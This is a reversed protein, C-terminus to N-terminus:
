ELWQKYKNQNQQIYLPLKHNELIDLKQGKEFQNTRQDVGLNYVSERNKMMDEIKKINLSSLEFERHHTYSKLKNEIGAASSIYSFHWGGNGIFQINTYKKKSFM